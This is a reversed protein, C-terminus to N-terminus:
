SNFFEILLPPGDSSRDFAVATGDKSRVKKM